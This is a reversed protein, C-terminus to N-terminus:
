FGSQFDSALEQLCGDSFGPRIRGAKKNQTQLKSFRWIKMPFFRCCRYNVLNNGSTQM